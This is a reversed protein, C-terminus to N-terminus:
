KWWDKRCLRPQTDADKTLEDLMALEVRSFGLLACLETPDNGCAERLDALIAAAEQTNRAALDLLSSRGLQWM